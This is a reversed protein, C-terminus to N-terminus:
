AGLLEARGPEVRAARRRSSRAAARRGARRRGRGRGRSGPAGAARPRGAALGLVHVRGLRLEERLAGDDVPEVLRAGPDRALVPRDDDLPVGVHDREALGSELRDDGTHPRREGLLLEALEAPERLPEPEREVAIGGALRRREASHLERDACPKSTFTTASGAPTSGASSGVPNSARSPAPAETRAAGCGPRPARASSRSAARRATAANRSVRGRSARGCPRRASPSRSSRSASGAGRRRSRRGRGGRGRRAQDGGAVPELAAREGAHDGM